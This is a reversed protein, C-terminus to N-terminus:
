DVRIIYYPCLEIKLHLTQLVFSRMSPTIAFVARLLCTGANKTEQDLLYGYDRMARRTMDLRQRPYGRVPITEEAKQQTIPFYGTLTQLM